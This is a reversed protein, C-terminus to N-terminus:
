RLAIAHGVALDVAAALVAVVASGAVVSDVRGVGVPGAEERGVAGLDV